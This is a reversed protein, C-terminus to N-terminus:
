SLCCFGVATIMYGFVVVGLVTLSWDRRMETGLYVKQPLFVALPSLLVKSINSSARREEFDKSTENTNSDSLPLPNQVEASAAPSPSPTSPAKRKGKPLSDPFVFVVLLINFLSCLIAAGFVPAVIEGGQGSGVTQFRFPSFWMAIFDFLRPQKMLAAGVVPGFALGVYVVGTFRVLSASSQTCDAVYAMTASQLSPWGGLIGEIAQALLINHYPSLLLSSTFRLSVLLCSMDRYPHYPENTRMIPFFPHGRLRCLISSPLIVILYVESM